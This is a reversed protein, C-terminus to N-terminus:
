YIFYCIGGGIGKEVMFLMNIDSLLDVKMKTRKLAAQWSLEPALLFKAPDLEYIKLCIELTRLCMLYCYHSQFSWDHYEGLNRLEFDKCVIKAQVYDADTIDEM